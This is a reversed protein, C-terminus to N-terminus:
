LLVQPELLRGLGATQPSPPPGWLNLGINLGRPLFPSGLIGSWAQM